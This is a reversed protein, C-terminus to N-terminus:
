RPRVGDRIAVLEPYVRDFQDPRTNAVLIITASSGFITWQVVRLPVGSPSQAKGLIEHAPLGGIVTTKAGDLAVRQLARMGLFQRRAFADRESPTPVEMITAAVISSQSHNPDVDNPGDTLILATGSIVSVIRFGGLRAVTYPLAAAQEALTPPARFVVSTLAARIVADPYTAAAMDTYQATVLATGTPSGVIIIWKRISGTGSRQRGVVLLAPNGGVTLRERRQVTIGQQALKGDDSFGVVVDPYANSPFMAVVIAANCIEDQFGAFSTAPSMGQPPVVGVASGTPFVADAAAAAVTFFLLAVGACFMKLM